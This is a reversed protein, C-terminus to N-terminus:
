LSETEEEVVGDGVSGVLLTVVGRSEEELGTILGLLSLPESLRRGGGDCALLLKLLLV